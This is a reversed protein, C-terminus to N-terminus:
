SSLVLHKSLMQLPNQCNSEIELMLISHLKVVLFSQTLTLLKLEAAGIYKTKIIVEHTLSQFTKHIIPNCVLVFSKGVSSDKKIVTINNYNPLPPFVGITLFLFM